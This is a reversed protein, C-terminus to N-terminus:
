TAWGRRGRANSCIGGPLPVSDAMAVAARRIPASHRTVAQTEIIVESIRKEADAPSLGTQAAAVIAAYARDEYSLDSEDGLRLAFLRTM